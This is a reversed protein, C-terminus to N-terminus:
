EPLTNSQILLVDDQTIDAAEITEDDDLRQETTEDILAYEIPQDDQETPLHMRGIIETVLEGVPVTTPVTMERAIGSPMMVKIRVFEM